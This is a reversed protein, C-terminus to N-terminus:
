GSIGAEKSEWRCDFIMTDHIEFKKYRTLPM